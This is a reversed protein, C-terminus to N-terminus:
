LSGFYKEKLFEINIKYYEEYSLLKQGWMRRESCNDRWLDRTFRGFDEGIEAIKEM